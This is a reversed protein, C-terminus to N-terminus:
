TFTNCICQYELIIHCKFFICLIYVLHCQSLFLYFHFHYCKRGWPILVSIKIAVPIISESHVCM